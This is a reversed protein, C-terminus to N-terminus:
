GVGDDVFDILLNGINLPGGVDFWAISTFKTIVAGYEGEVFIVRVHHLMKKPDRRVRVLDARGGEISGVLGAWILGHQNLISALEGIRSQRIDWGCPCRNKPLRPSDSAGM